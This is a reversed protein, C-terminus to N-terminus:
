VINLERLEEAERNGCRSFYAPFVPDTKTIIKGDTFSSNRRIGINIKLEIGDKIIKLKRCNM